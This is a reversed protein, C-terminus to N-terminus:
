KRDVFKDVAFAVIAFIGATVLFFSGIPFEVETKEMIITLIPLISLVIGTLIYMLWDWKFEKGKWTNISYVLLIATSFISLGLTWLSLGTTGVWDNYGGGVGYRIIGGLWSYVTTGGGSVFVSWPILIGIIAIFAAILAYLWADKKFNVM